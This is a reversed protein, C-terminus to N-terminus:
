ESWEWEPVWGNRRAHVDLSQFEKPTIPVFCIEDGQEFLFSQHRQPDFSKAPTRGLLHWGSPGPVSAILAQAGGINVSGAPTSVRPTKRRPIQLSEPLPGLYALGPAFGVMFVHYTPACHLAIVEMESLGKTRAVEALDMGFDGGYCVPVRWRRHRTTIPTPANWLGAIWDCVAGHSQIAADYHVLVAQYTPIVPGVGIPAHQRLSCALAIVRRNLAIDIGGEFKVLVGHDAVAILRPTTAVPTESM